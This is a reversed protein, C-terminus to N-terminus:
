GDLKKYVKWGERQLRYEKEMNEDNMKQLHDAVWKRIKEDSSGVIRAALIAANVSNGIGVTAVPIGRPMQVISLLSDLGDLSSAKVPVGIVPVPTESAMMGPLHAAGGAAAIIAKLGRSAASKGFDLMYQPTRHASTIHVEYPINMTDLLTLGPRLTALDTDSGMVVGVVARASPAPNAGLLEAQTKLISSASPEGSRDHRHVRIADVMQILPHIKIECESLSSGTITIHGMKRGPRGQGKGYLHIKAGPVDLAAKAVLTHSDPQPGGLINLMIAANVTLDTAGAPIKSALDPLIARIQAEFQSMHCAEITYHGSNHPRPAIENVLLSDDPLLFLEVGFVGTGRFTSVARRALDQAARAVEQSVDRPPVYVLKCISDEHVTEVTPYALTHQEWADPDDEQATKVVMVALEQKFHSWKEAYLPREALAAIAPGIDSMSKVPFNGRGDYAQTRSKLMFPYDLIEGADILGQQSPSVAISKSIPISYKAFHQKQTFKDQITRVTRWSPQFRSWQTGEIFPKEAELKELIETDVHEIEYTLVDCGSALAKVDSANAFSGTVHMDHNALYKAPASDADLVGVQINLRNAAEVLMRGLQGGGLVGVIHDDM